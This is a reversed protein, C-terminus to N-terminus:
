RNSRLKEIEAQLRVYAARETASLEEDLLNEHEYPDAQLDYFEEVGDFRLLKYRKDRMAYDATEVGEFGGFFEDAYVWKRPTASPDSLTELLSVSDHTVDAPITGEPDIGAMEMITVFLDTSNVLADSVAGRQVGPGTVITARTPSCVPQSWFNTYRVGNRALDDLNATAPPNEGVGYSAVTEVGMDDGIILLINPASNATGAFGLAIALGAARWTGDRSRLM